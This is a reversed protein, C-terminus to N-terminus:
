GIALDAGRQADAMPGYGAVHGPDQAFEPNGGAGRGRRQRDALADDSGEGRRLAFHCQTTTGLWTRNRSQTTCHIRAPSVARMTLDQRDQIPATPYFLLGLHRTQVPVGMWLREDIRLPDLRVALVRGDPEDLDIDVSGGVGRGMDSAGCAPVPRGLKLLRDIRSMGVCCSHSLKEASVPILLSM